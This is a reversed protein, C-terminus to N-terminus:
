NIKGPEGAEWTEEIEWNSRVEITKPFYEVREPQLKKRFDGTDWRGNQNRDFIIKFQYKGPTVYSFKLLAPASVVKTELVTEKENLMQVLLPQGSAPTSIKIQISGFEREARTQFDWNITDNTLEYMSFFVSDPAFLRYKTEEKWPHSISIKRHASDAFRVKARLTDGGSILLIKESRFRALPAAFTIVPDAKFQNIRDPISSVSSRLRDPRSTEQKGSRKREEKMPKPILLTDVTLGKDFVLLQLTDVPIERTWLVVTDRATNSETLMWDPAPTFNLPTFAPQLTPFRFVLRIQGERIYGSKLIRQVSDIKEFFYLVPEGRKPVVTATDRAIRTSDKNVLSDTRTTDIRVPAEYWGKVLSDAFAIKENPLNYILDGDQDKLAFLLYPINRINRFRFRGTEDTKTLYGPRVHMPLSDIRLTDNEDAYLMVMVDPQPKQDFADMVVGGLSISDIYSGTSFVYSLTATINGETIDSIAKGFTISYTTAPALPNHLEILLSKGHVSFEAGTQNPPSILVQNNADKLQIFEDFNIRIEEGTFGTTNNEPKFSIAAPPTVDKPGGTPMVPNACRTLFLHMGAFLILGATTSRITSLTSPVVRRLALIVLRKHM